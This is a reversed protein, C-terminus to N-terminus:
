THILLIKIEATYAICIFFIIIKSLEFVGPEFCISSARRSQVPLHKVLAFEICFLGYLLHGVEVIPSRSPFCSFPQVM